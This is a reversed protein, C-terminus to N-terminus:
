PFGVGSGHLIPQINTDGPVHIPALNKISLRYSGKKLQIPENLDTRSKTKDGWSTVCRSTFAKSAVPQGELSTIDIQLQIDAGLKEKTASPLSDYDIRSKCAPHNSMSPDGAPGPKNYAGWSDFYFTLSFRYGEDMPVSIKQALVEGRTSLDINPSGQIAQNSGCMFSLWMVVGLIPQKCLTATLANM